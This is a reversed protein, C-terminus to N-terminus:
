APVRRADLSATSERTMARVQWTAEHTEGPALHILGAGSNFADPACTMPEVALGIRDQDPEPRDATHIQIWPCVEDFSLAVGQGGPDWVRVTALGNGDRTLDTFAHDIKADGITRPTRYDLAGDATAAVDALALPILRDPTVTLVTEAPLELTWDDVRGDGAVLYPHPGTGWPATTASLNRGIVTTTLGASGVAYQVRLEVRYPYGTQPPITTTLEVRDVAERTVAFDHWVVLGHLAHRRTPETLALQHDEGGYHYRGDVVRNPWPALIAGRFAPRVVDAGYPVVLDRGDHRLSRLSGGITAITAVYGDASITCQRGSTLQDTM